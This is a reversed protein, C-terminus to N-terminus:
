LVDPNQRYEQIASLVDKGAALDVLELDQVYQFRTRLSSGVSAHASAKAAPSLNSRFRVLLRGPVYREPRQPTPFSPRVVQAQAFSGASWFVCILAMASARRVVFGLNAARCRVIGALRARAGSPASPGRSCIELTTASM